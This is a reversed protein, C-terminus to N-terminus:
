PMGAAVTSSALGVDIRSRALSASATTVTPRVYRAPAQEICAINDSGSITVKFYIEIRQVSEDITFSTSNSYEEFLEVLSETQFTHAMGIKDAYPKDFPAGRMGELSERAQILGMCGSLSVTMFVFVMLLPLVKARM